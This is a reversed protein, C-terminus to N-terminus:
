ERGGLIDRVAKRLHDTTPRAGARALIELVEPSHSAMEMPTGGDDHLANPDGGRALLLRAMDGRDERAVVFLPTEGGIGGRENADGGHELVLRLIELHGTQVARHVLGAGDRGGELLAKLADADRREIAETVTTAPVRQAVDAAVRELLASFSSAVQPLSSVGAPLNEHDVFFVAGRGVGGLGLGFYNGFPDSGILLLSAPISSAAQHFMEDLRCFKPGDHLGFLEALGPVEDLDACDDFEAGNFETLFARYDPPLPAPLQQEFAALRAQELPGYPHNRRITM